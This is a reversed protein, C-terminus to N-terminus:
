DQEAKYHNITSQSFNTNSEQEINDQHLERTSLYSIRDSRHIYVSLFNIKIKNGLLYGCVCVCM